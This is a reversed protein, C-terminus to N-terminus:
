GVEEANEGGPLFSEPTACDGNVWNRLAVLDRFPHKSSAIADWFSEREREWNREIVREITAILEEANM